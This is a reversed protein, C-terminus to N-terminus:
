WRGSAGGGGFGGGGGGFGGGRGGGFGGGGFGGSSIRGGGAGGGISFVVAIVALVLGGILTGLVLWGGVFALAGAVGSGVLRGFFSRMLMGGFLALLLVLSNADSGGSASDPQPKSGQAPPPLAEGDVLGILADVGADIGGAIDGRQFHPTIIEAIVRKAIADPIAGELGRGVEIRLTRDGMAVLLLVGDDVDKRGLRWAEVVRISFQEIAEPQTSDVILVAIQSGRAQEFAALKAELASRAAADLARAQDTVRAQLAPVPLEARLPAISLLLWVLALWAPWFGIKV